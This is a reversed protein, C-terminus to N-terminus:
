WYCGKEVKDAGKPKLDPRIWAGTVHQTVHARREWRKGMIGFLLQTAGGTQIAQRNQSKIFWCLPSGYAGAGILAVDFEHKIVELKLYDLAEFWNAFREDYEEGITQIAKVTILKFDPLINEKSFLEHRRAYQKEILEAFPSVVLVTKGKLASVWDGMLPEFSNYQIVEADPIYKRFFYDEM